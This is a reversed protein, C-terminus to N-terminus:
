IKLYVTSTNFHDRFTPNFVQNTGTNLFPQDPKTIKVSIISKSNDTNELKSYRYFYTLVNSMFIANQEEETLEYITKSEILSFVDLDIFNHLSDFNYMKSKSDAPDFNIKKYSLQQDNNLSYEVIFGVTVGSILDTTGPFENDFNELASNKNLYIEIIQDPISIIKLGLISVKSILRDLNSAYVLGLTELVSRTLTSDFFLILNEDNATKEISFSFNMSTILVTRLDSVYSFKKSLQNVINNIM